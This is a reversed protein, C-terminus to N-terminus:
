IGAGSKPCKGICVTILNQDVHDDLNKNAFASQASLANIVAEEADVKGKLTVTYKISTDTTDSENADDSIAHVAKKFAMKTVLDFSKGRLEVVYQRGRASRDAWYSLVRSAIVPSMRAGVKKSAAGACDEINIGEALVDDAASAVIEGDTTSFVTLAVKVVCLLRGTAAQVDGKVVTSTGVMLFAANKKRAFESFKKMEPGNELTSLTLPKGGFFESRINSSDLIRLDYDRLNGIFEAQFIPLTTPKSNDQFEVLHRFSATQHSAAEVNKQDVAASQSRSSQAAAVSDKAHYEAAAAAQGSVSADRNAANLQVASVAAADSSSSAAYAANSSSSAASAKLSKDSLSRGADYHSEVLERLPMHLDNNSPVLFEEIYALIGFNRDESKDLDTGRINKKILVGDVFATVHTVLEDGERQEDVKVDRLQKAIDDVITAFKPDSADLATADRIASIVADRIAAQKAAARVVSADGASLPARGVGIVGDDASASSAAFAAIFGVSLWLALFSKLRKM